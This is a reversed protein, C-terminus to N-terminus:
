RAGDKRHWYDMALHTRKFWQDAMDREDSGNSRDSALFDAVFNELIERPTLRRGYNERWRRCFLRWKTAEQETIMITMRKKKPAPITAVAPPVASVDPANM